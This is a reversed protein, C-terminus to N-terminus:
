PRKMNTPVKEFIDILGPLTQKDAQACAMEFLSAYTFSQSETPSSKGFCRSLRPREASEAMERSNMMCSKWILRREPVQPFVPFLLVLPLSAVLHMSLSSGRMFLSHINSLVQRLWFCFVPDTKFNSISNSEQTTLLLSDHAQHNTRTLTHLVEMPMRNGMEYAQDVGAFLDETGGGDTSFVQRQM